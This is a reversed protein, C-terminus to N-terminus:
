STKFIEWDNFLVSRRESLFYELTLFLLALALFWQFQDEYDAYVYAEFDAKESEALRQKIAKLEDGGGLRFYSGGGSEAVQKLMSENLKSFVISGEQDQKFGVNRGNKIDPVPAGKATGVGMTLIQMNQDKASSAADLAEGEHDEGDSIILLTRIASHSNDFSEQALKIAEGIATGQTPALEPTVSKLLSKVAAYDTTIPVQLYANGAFIILGVRDGAMEDILNSIFQKSKDLRNPRVDEALMSKSIDLAIIVDGGKREQKEFTQGVQPNALAVVLSAVALTAFVFKVQHKGKPQGPMLAAMLSGEGMKSIARKRSWMFYAFALGLPILVLLLYLAEPHEFKVM